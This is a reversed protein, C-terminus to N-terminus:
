AKGRVDAQGEFRRLQEKLLVIVDARKANSIYNARGDFGEFPFVMLCFGWTKEKTNINLASDVVRAIKNMTERVEPQIPKDGLQEPQKM